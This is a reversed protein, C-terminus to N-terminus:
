FILLDFVVSEEGSTVTLTFYSRTDPSISGPIGVNSPSHSPSTFAYTIVRGMFNWPRSYGGEGRMAKSIPDFSNEYKQVGFVDTLDDLQSYHWEEMDVWFDFETEEAHRAAVTVTFEEANVYFLLDSQLSIGVVNEAGRYEVEGYTVTLPKQEPDLGPETQGDGFVIEDENLTIEYVTKQSFGCQVVLALFAVLVLMYLIVYLIRWKAKAQKKM